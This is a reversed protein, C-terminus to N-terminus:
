KRFPGGGTRAAATAPTEERRGGGPGAASHFPSASHASGASGEREALSGRHQEGRGDEHQPRATDRGLRVLEGEHAAHKEVAVFDRRQMVRRHEDLSLADDPHSPRRLDLDGGVVLDHVGTAPRHQGAQDVEVGMQHDQSVPGVGLPERPHFLAAPFLRDVLHHRDRRLLQEHGPHGGRHVEAPREAAAQVDAVPDVRALNGSRPQPHAPRPERAPHPDKRLVVLDLDRTGFSRGLGGFFEGAGPHVHDLGVRPQDELVIPGDDLHRVTMAELHVRVDVRRLIHAIRELAAHVDQGVGARRPRRGIRRFQEAVDHHAPSGDHDGSRVPDPDKRGRHRKGFPELVRPQFLVERRVHVGLDLARQLVKM